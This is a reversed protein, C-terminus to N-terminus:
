TETQLSYGVKSYSYIPFNPLRRRLNYILTRVANDAIISDEWIKNILVEFRVTTNCMKCLIDVLISQQRNLKVPVNDYYLIKLSKSYRYHKNIVLTNTDFAEENKLIKNQALHRSHALHLSIGLDKASFPKTIFGYPNIELVEQFVDVSDDATIFIIPLNTYTQTIIKALRIGDMSGKINIDMLIMDYWKTEIQKLVDAANDLCDVTEEQIHHYYALINKIYRQVLVEDEVILINEPLQMIMGGRFSM